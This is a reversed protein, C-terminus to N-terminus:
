EKVPKTDPDTDAPVTEVADKGKDLTTLMLLPIYVKVNEWDKESKKNYERIIYYPELLIDHYPKEMSQKM